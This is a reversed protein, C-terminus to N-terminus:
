RKKTKNRRIKQTIGSKIQNIKISIINKVMPLLNIMLNKMNRKLAISKQTKMEMRIYHSPFFFFFENHNKINISGNQKKNHM